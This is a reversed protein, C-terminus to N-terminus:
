PRSRGEAQTRKLLASLRAARKPYKAALNNDEHPDQALDCLVPEPIIAAAFRPDNPNAGSGM